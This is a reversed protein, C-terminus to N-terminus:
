IVNRHLVNKIELKIYNIKAIHLTNKYLKYESLKAIFCNFAVVV